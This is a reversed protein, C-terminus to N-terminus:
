PSKRKVPQPDPPQSAALRRIEAAEPDDPSLELFRLLHPKAEAPRGMKYLYLLGLNLHAEPQGEEDRIAEKFFQEARGFDERALAINGMALASIADRPDLALAKAFSKEALDLRGLSRLAQGREQYALASDPYAAIFADYGALAEAFRKSSLLQRATQFRGLDVAFRRLDVRRLPRAGAATTPVYGLGKLADIDHESLALDGGFLETEM